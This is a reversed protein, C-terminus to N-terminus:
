PHFMELAKISKFIHRIDWLFSDAKGEEFGSGYRAWCTWMGAAKAGILDREPWDGVMLCEGPKCQLESMEKKFPKGDPKMKGTDDYYGFHAVTAM